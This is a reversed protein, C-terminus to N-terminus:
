PAEPLSMSASVVSRLSAYCRRAKEDGRGNLVEVRDCMPCKLWALVDEDHRLQQWNVCCEESCFYWRMPSELVQMLDALRHPGSICWHCRKRPARIMHPPKWDRLHHPIFM